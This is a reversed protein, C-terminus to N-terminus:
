IITRVGGETISNKKRIHLLFYNKEVTTEPSVQSSGEYVPLIDLCSFWEASVAVSNELSAIAM